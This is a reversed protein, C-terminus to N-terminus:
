LPQMRLEKEGNSGYPCHVTFYQLMWDNQDKQNKNEFCYHANLVDHITLGHIKIGCKEECGNFNIVKTLQWQMTYDDVISCSSEEIINSLQSSNSSSPHLKNPTSTLLPEASEVPAPDDSDSLYIQDSTDTASPLTLENVPEEESEAASPLSFDDELYNIQIGEDCSFSSCSPLTDNNSCLLGEM